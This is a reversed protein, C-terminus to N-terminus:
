LDLDKYADHVLQVYAKKTRKQAKESVKGLPILSKDERFDGDRDRVRIGIQDEPDDTNLGDHNHDIIVVGELRRDLIFGKKQTLYEIELSNTESNGVVYSSAKRIKLFGARGEYTYKTPKDLTANYVAEVHKPHARKVCSKHVFVGGVAVGILPLVIHPHKITKEILHALGEFASM